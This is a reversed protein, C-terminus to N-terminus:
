PNLRINDVYFREGGMPIPIRITINEMADRQMMRDVPSAVIDDVNITVLASARTVHIVQNFRDSRIGSHERDNIRLVVDLGKPDDTFIEFSLTDFESWDGIADINLGSYRQTSLTVAAVRSPNDPWADNVRTLELQAGFQPRYFPREWDSDFAAIVPANMARWGLAITPQAVPILVACLLLTAAVRLAIRLPRRSRDALSDLSAAMLTVIGAIGLLNTGLDSLSPQGSGLVQFAELAAGVCTAVIAATLLSSRAPLFQCSGLYILACILAFSPGHLANRLQAGPLSGPATQLVILSIVTVAVLLIVIVILHRPQSNSM